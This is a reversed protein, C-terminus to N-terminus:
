IEAHSPMGCTSCHYLRITTTREGDECDYILDKFRTYTSESCDCKLVKQCDNCWGTKLDGHKDCKYM